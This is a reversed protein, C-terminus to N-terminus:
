GTNKNLYDHLYPFAHGNVNRHCVTKTGYGDARWYGVPESGGDASRAQLYFSKFTQRSRSRIEVIILSAYHLYFEFSTMNRVWIAHRLKVHCESSTM